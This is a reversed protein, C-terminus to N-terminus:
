WQVLSMHSLVERQQMIAHHKEVWSREEPTMNTIDVFMIEREKGLLKAEAEMAKTKANREEVEIARKTLDFFSSCTAV